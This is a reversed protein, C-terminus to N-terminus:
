FTVGSVTISSISKEALFGSSDEAIPSLPSPPTFNFNLVGGVGSPATFGDGSYSDVKYVSYSSEWNSDTHMVLINFNDPIGLADNDSYTLISYAQHGNWTSLNSNNSAEIYELMEADYLAVQYIKVGLMDTITQGAISQFEGQNEVGYSYIYTKSSGDSFNIVYSGNEKCSYTGTGGSTNNDAGGGSSSDDTEPETEATSPNECSIIAMIMFLSLLLLLSRKKM